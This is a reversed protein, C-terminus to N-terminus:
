ANQYAQYVNATAPVSGGLAKYVQIAGFVIFVFFLVLDIIVGIMLAAKTTADLGTVLVLILCLVVLVGYGAFGYLAIKAKKVDKNKMALIEFVVFVLILANEIIFLLYIGLGSTVNPLAILNQVVTIAQYVAYIYLIIKYAFYWGKDFDASM